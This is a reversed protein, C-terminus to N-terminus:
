NGSLDSKLVPLLRSILKHGGFHNLHTTDWFDTDQQFEPSSGLDVFQAGTNNALAAIRRSFEDYFGTPLLDRNVATLPMNVVIVKIGRQKCIKLLRDLFGMQMELSKGRIGHYLRRYEEISEKFRDASSGSLMFGAQHQPKAGMSKDGDLGAAAYLRHVGREIDRQLHWRRGYFYCLHSALFDAKDQWEPLYLPAYRGFNTLNVLRKFTFTSMPGPLDADSFDRPALGYVLVDPKRNGKLFEDVYIFADSAMQGFIALSYVSQHPLGDKALADQLSYSYHHHFIDPISPDREKDMAWFPYMMLSSGLLVIDPRAHLESFGKLTIDISGPSSWLDRSETKEKGFAIWLLANISVFALLAWLTATVLLPLRRRPRATTKGSPNSVDSQM